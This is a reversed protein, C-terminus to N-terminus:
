GVTVGEVGDFTAKVYGKSKPNKALLYEYHLQPDKVAVAKIAQHREMSQERMMQRVRRDYEKIPDDYGNEESEEEEEGKAQKMKLKDGPGEVSEKVNVPPTPTYSRYNELAQSLTVEQELQSCLFKEDAGVCFQKLVKYSVKEDLNVSNGSQVPAAPVSEVVKNESMEQLREFAQDLDGVADVLGLGKSQTANFIEGTSVAKMQEDSLGRGSKVADIFHSNVSNVIGQVEELQEPTIPTGPAGTGKKPGSAIVYVKRGQEETAKSSDVVTTYTGISGTFGGSEMMVERAQSGLFYGASAMVDEGHSLTPKEKSLRAFEKAAENIGSSHGGPTDFLVLVNSIDDNQRAERFQKRLGVSSTSQGLSSEGKMINGRVQIVATEGGGKNSVTEVKNRGLLTSQNRTALIREVHSNLNTSEILQQLSDAGEPTILWVGFYDMIRPALWFEEKLLLELPFM